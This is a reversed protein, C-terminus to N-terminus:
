GRREHWIRGGGDKVAAAGVGLDDGAAHLIFDELAEAVGAGAKFADGVEALHGGMAVWAEGGEGSTSLEADGGAVWAGDFAEELLGSGGEGFFDFDVVHAGVGGCRDGFGEEAGVGSGAKVRSLSRWEDNRM